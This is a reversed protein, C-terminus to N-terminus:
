SPAPDTRERLLARIATENRDGGATRVLLPGLQRDDPRILEDPDIATNERIFWRAIIAATRKNGEFFGQTSVIEYLLAAAADVPDTEAQVRELAQQVLQLDDDDASPSVEDPGRVAENCAIVEELTPFRV